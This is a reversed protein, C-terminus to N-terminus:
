GGVARRAVAPPLAEADPMRLGLAGRAMSAPRAPERLSLERDIAACLVHVAVLHLEQVTATTAARIAVADDCLEALPNPAPGTLAWTTLGCAAAAQVAAVINESRGSTSLAILVDGPRGHARVQRAYMEQIGYDNCIATMASTDGHLCLASLPQRETVYRGVLEATLHQAEAASGGNGVALVRAGGALACALREGWAEVHDVEGEFGALAEQLAAFHDRGRPVLAHRASSRQFRRTGGPAAVRAHVDLTSAAIRDWDYLRRAREVGARGYGARLEPDEVIPRLACALREPDRPPVHVGTVGDVVTDIM